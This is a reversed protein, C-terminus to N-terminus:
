APRSALILDTPGPLQVLRADAYGAARLWAQYESASYTQGGATGVLMNLAFLAAHLPATGDEDVLFDQIV